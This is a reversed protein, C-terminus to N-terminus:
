HIERALARAVLESAQRCRDLPAGRRPAFVAEARDPREGGREQSPAVTSPAVTPRGAEPPSISRM